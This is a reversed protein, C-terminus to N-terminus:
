PKLCNWFNYCFNMKWEELSEVIHLFRKNTYISFICDKGYTLYRWQQKSELDKVSDIGRFNMQFRNLFLNWNELCSSKSSTSAECYKWKGYYAFTLSCWPKNTHKGSSDITTCKTYTNGKYKFPFRCKDISLFLINQVCIFVEIFFICYCSMVEWRNKLHPIFTVKSRIKM